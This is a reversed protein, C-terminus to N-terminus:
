KTVAILKGNDDYHVSPDICRTNMMVLFSVGLAVALMFEHFKMDDEKSHGVPSSGSDELAM